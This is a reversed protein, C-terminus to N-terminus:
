SGCGRKSKKKSPRKERAYANVEEDSNEEREKIKRKILFPDPPFM